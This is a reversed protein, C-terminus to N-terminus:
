FFRLGARELPAPLEVEATEPLGGGALSQFRLEEGDALSTTVPRSGIACCGPRRTSQATRAGLQQAGLGALAVCPTSSM